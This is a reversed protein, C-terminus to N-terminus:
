PTLPSNGKFLMFYKLPPSAALTLNALNDRVLDLKNIRSSGVLWKSKHDFSVIFIINCHNLPTVKITECSLSKKSPVELINRHIRSLRRVTNWSKCLHNWSNSLLQRFHYLM